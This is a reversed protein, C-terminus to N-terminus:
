RRRGARASEEVCKARLLGQRVHRQVMRGRQRAHRVPGLRQTEEPENGFAYETTSGARCAYEWEAETPLRYGAGDFNCASNDENYCPELGEARSRLNCYMAAQAWNIMEVPLDSGKFHSPNPLEMKEYEAQTVEYKDMLFADIWVSHVPAENDPGGRSGMEFSGAPILVMEVGGKTKITLPVSTSSGPGGNNQCSIGAMIAALFIAALASRM